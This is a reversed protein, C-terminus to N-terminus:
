VAVVYNPIKAIKLIATLHYSYGDMCISLLRDENKLAARKLCNFKTRLAWLVASPPLSSGLSRRAWANKIDCIIVVRSLCLNYLRLIWKSRRLLPKEKQRAAWRGLRGGVKEVRLLGKM